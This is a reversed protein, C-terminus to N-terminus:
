DNHKDKAGFDIDSAPLSDGSKLTKGNGFNYNEGLTMQPVPRGTGVPIKATSVQSEAQVYVELTTNESYSAAEKLIAQRAGALDVTWGGDNDVVTSLPSVGAITLYVIAGVAPKKDVRVVSGFVIDSAKGVKLAYATKTRYPSGENDFLNEGSGIRFQYNTSPSLGRIAIHHLNTKPQNGSALLEESKEYTVYGFTPKATVWSVTFSSDTINTIRVNKPEERPNASLKFTQRTQVLFVGVAVGVILIILGVITPLKHQKKM